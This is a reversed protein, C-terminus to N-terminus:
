VYYKSSIFFLLLLFRYLCKFCLRKWSPVVQCEIDLMAASWLPPTSNQGKSGEKCNGAEKEERGAASSLVSCVCPASVKWFWRNGEVWELIETSLIEERMQEEGAVVKMGIELDPVFVTLLLSGLRAGGPSGEEIFDWWRSRVKVALRKIM